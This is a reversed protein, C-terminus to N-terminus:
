NIQVEKALAQLEGVRLYPTLIQNNTQKNTKLYKEFFSENMEKKVSVVLCLFLSFRLIFKSLRIQKNGRHISM